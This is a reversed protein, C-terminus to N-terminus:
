VVRIEEGVRSPERNVNTEPRVQYWTINSYFANTVLTTPTPQHHTAWRVAESVVDFELECNVLETDIGAVLMAM